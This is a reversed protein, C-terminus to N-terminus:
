ARALTALRRRARARGAAARRYRALACLQLEVDTQEHSLPEHLHLGQLASNVVASGALAAARRAGLRRLSRSRARSRARSALSHQRTTKPCADDALALSIPM